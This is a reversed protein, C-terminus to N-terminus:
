FMFIGCYMFGSIKNDNVEKVLRKFEELSFEEECFGKIVDKEM